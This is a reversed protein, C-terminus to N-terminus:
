KYNLSNKATDAQDKGLYLIPEAAAEANHVNEQIFDANFVRINNRFGSLDGYNLERSNTDGDSASIKFSFSINSNDQTLASDLAGKEISRM